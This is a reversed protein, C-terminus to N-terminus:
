RAPSEAKHLFSFIRTYGMIDSFILIVGVLVLTGILEGAGAPARDIESVLWAAEADTLSAIRLTAQKVSVGRAALASVVDARDLTSLVRTHASEATLAGQSRAVQETSILAAQAAQMPVALAIAAAALTAIVRQPRFM